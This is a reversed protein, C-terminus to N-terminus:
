AEKVDIVKTENSKIINTVEAAAVPEIDKFQVMKTEFCALLLGYVGKNVKALYNSVYNEKSWKQAPVNAFYDEAFKEADPLSNENMTPKADPAASAQAPAKAVAEKGKFTNKKKLELQQEGNYEKKIFDYKGTEGLPLNLFSTAMINEKKTIDELSYKYLVWPQNTKQSIGTKIADKSLVKVVINLWQGSNSQEESMGM